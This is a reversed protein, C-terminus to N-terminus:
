ISLNAVIKAVDEKSYSEEDSAYPYVNTKIRDELYLAITNYGYKKAFDFFRFIEDLTEKQRALDLQVIKLKEM